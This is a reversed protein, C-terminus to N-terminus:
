EILFLIQNYEVPQENEILIEVIVGDKEAEIENMLKMAEIICLPDGKKVKKNVHVYPTGGPTASSYYTGVFPSRVEQASSRTEAKTSGRDQSTVLHVPSPASTHHHSQSPVPAAATHPAGYGLHPMVFPNALAPTSAQHLRVSSDKQKVELEQLGYKRMLQILEEIKGLDM